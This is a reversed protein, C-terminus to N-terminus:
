QHARLMATFVPCDGSRVEGVVKFGHREYLTVNRPNSSELYAPEGAADFRAVAYEMLASGVGHNQRFADVGILPLYWYPVKPRYGALENFAGVLDAQRSEDITSQIVEGLEEEDPAEGPPLWLAAGQIDEDIWASGCAFAKGGYANIYSAANTFYTDPDAYVYRAVPDAVFGAIIAAVARDRDSEGAVRIAIKGM